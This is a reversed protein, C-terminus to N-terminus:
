FKVYTEVGLHQREVQYWYKSTQWREYKFSARVGIPLTAHEHYIGAEINYSGDFSRSGWYGDDDSGYMERRLVQAYQLDFGILGMSTNREVRMGIPLLYDTFYVNKYGRMDNDEWYVGIGVFPKLMFGSVDYSKGAVAQASIHAVNSSETEDSLRGFSYKGDVAWWFTDQNKEYGLLFGGYNGYSSKGRENNRHDEYDYLVGIKIKGAEEALAISPASLALIFFFVVTM